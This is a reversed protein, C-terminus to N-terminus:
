HTFKRKALHWNYSLWESVSLLRWSGWASREFPHLM